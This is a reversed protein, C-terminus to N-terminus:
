LSLFTKGVEGQETLSENSMKFKTKRKQPFFSLKISAFTETNLLQVYAVNILDFLEFNHFIM